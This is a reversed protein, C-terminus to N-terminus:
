SLAPVTITGCEVDWGERRVNVTGSADLEAIVSKGLMIKGSRYLVDLSETSVAQDQLHEGIQAAARGLASSRSVESSPRSPASWFIKGSPAQLKKEKLVKCLDWGHRPERWWLFVVKGRKPAQIDDCHALVGLETLLERARAVLNDRRSMEEWSGLVFKRDDVTEVPSTRSNQNASGSTANQPFHTPHQRAADRASEAIKKVELLEKEHRDLQEQQGEVKEGLSEIEKSLGVKLGNVQEGLRALQAELASTVNASVADSIARIEGAPLAPTLAPTTPTKAKAPAPVALTDGPRKAM